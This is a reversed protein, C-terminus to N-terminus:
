PCPTTRSTPASSRAPRGAGRPATRGSCRSTPTDASVHYKPRAQAAGAAQESMGYFDYIRADFFKEIEARQFAYLMEADTMLVRPRIGELPHASLYQYIWYLHSPFAILGFPRFRATRRLIAGLEEENIQQANFYLWRRPREHYREAGQVPCLFRAFVAM